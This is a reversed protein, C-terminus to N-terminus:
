EGDFKELSRPHEDRRSPVDVYGQTIAYEVWREIAASRDVPAATPDYGFREGTIRELSAIATMRAAPDSSDLMTILDPVAKAERDQAAKAAAMSRESPDISDFDAQRSPAQCGGAGFIAGALALVCLGRKDVVVIGSRGM